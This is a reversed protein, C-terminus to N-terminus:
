RGFSSRKIWRPGGHHIFATASFWMRQAAHLYSPPSGWCHGHGLLQAGDLLRDRCELEKLPLQRLHEM